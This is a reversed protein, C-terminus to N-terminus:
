ATFISIVLSIIMCVSRLAQHELQANSNDVCEQWAAVDNMRGASPQPLEYRCKCCGNCAICDLVNFISIVNVLAM